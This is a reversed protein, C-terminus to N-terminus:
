QRNRNGSHVVVEYEPIAKIEQLEVIDAKGDFEPWADVPLFIPADRRLPLIELTDSQAGRGSLFRKMGVEWPSGHYYDDALLHQGKSFHAVDGTYGIRLYLESIGDLADAPVNIRWAGARQYKDLTPAVANYQGQKVPEAPQADRIKEFSTRVSKRAVTVAFKEFIGDSASRSLEGSTSSLNGGAPFIAFSMKEPETARLVIEGNKFFIDAASLVLHPTGGLPVTWLNRAQEQTLVVINVVRGQRSRLRVAVTTGPTIHSVYIQEPSRDVSARGGSLSHVTKSSFAFEVPIDRIAGFFYFTEAGIDVKCLPQATAYQLLSGALSLNVPWIFYDGSDVSFPHRPITLDESAFKVHFQLNERRPLPYDRLYNNFFLFGRNGDTRLASRPVTRDAPDGPLSDPAVPVMPALLSGFDGLFQHFPKIARYAPHLQGFEGIPAQFDYSVVPLDYVHDVAASEQLSTRKGDPNSGGHFLYYGYLNAGAGLHTVAIAAIDDASIVPRRHYAFEMGGGAEALFHPYESVKEEKTKGGATPDITIGGSDRDVAFTYAENAPLKERLSEWFADPYVGFVPIVEKRPFDADGWGTVTFLPASLGAALAIKKLESIHAAGADPGHLFYENELQIGVLPGGETWLLGALQKGIEKYFRTVQTLYEAVNRRVPGANVVWDPLGGNRVEGHAFPGIRAFLLLRHKACLQAFRRLDRRGSWDFQDQVEEHHIWFVYTAIIEVGASKMKLLEDEWEAEPYRSYQFEGMVPIWPKGNRTLYLSNVEIDEGTSSKGGMAFPLPKPARISKSADILIVNAPQADQLNSDIQQGSAVPLLLVLWLLRLVFSSADM